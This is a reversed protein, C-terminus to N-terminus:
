HLTVLNPRAEITKSGSENQKSSDKMEKDEVGNNVNLQNQLLKSTTHFGRTRSHGIASSVTPLGSGREDKGKIVAIM